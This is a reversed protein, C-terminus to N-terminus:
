GSEQSSHPAECPDSEAEGEGTSSKGWAVVRLNEGILMRLHPRAELNPAVYTELTTIIREVSYSALVSTLIVIEKRPAPAAEDRSAFLMAERSTVGRLRDEPGLLQTVDACEFVEVFKAQPPFRRRLWDKIREKAVGAM